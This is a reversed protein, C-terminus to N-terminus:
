SPDIMSKQDTFVRVFRQAAHVNHRDSPIWIPVLEQTWFVCGSKEFRHYLWIVWPTLATLGLSLFTFLVLAFVSGQGSFASALSALFWSVAFLLWLIVVIWLKILSPQNFTARNLAKIFGFQFGVWGAYNIRLGCIRSNTVCWFSHEPFLLGIAGLYGCDIVKENHGLFGSFLEEVAPRNDTKAQRYVEGLQIRGRQLPERIRSIPRSDLGMAQSPIEPVFIQAQSNGASGQSKPGSQAHPAPMVAGPALELVFPGIELKQGPLWNAEKIRQGALRTGNASGADKIHVGAADLYIEAHLRSVTGDKLLIDVGEERGITLSDSPNLQKLGRVQSSQDASQSWSVQFSM